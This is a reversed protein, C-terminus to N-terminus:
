KTVHSRDAETAATYAATLKEMMAKVEPSPNEIHAFIGPVSGDVMVAEQTPGRRPPNFPRMPGTPCSAGSARAEVALPADRASGIPAASKRGGSPLLHRTM